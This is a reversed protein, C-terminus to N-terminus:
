RERLEYRSRPPTWQLDMEKRLRGLARKRAQRYIKLKIRQGSEQAPTLRIKV